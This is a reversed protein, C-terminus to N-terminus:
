VRYMSEVKLHQTMYKRHLYMRHRKLKKLIHQFDRLIKSADDNFCAASTNYNDYNYILSIKDNDNVKQSSIGFNAYQGNVYFGWYYWDNGVNYMNLDSISDLSDGWASTSIKYNDKYASKDLAIKIADEAVAGEDLQVATKGMEVASGSANKGEAAVYVVIKEKEEANAKVTTMGFATTFAMVASLAISIAKKNRM